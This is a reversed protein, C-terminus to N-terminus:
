LARHERALKLNLAYTKKDIGHKEAFAIQSPTLGDSDQKEESKPDITQTPKSGISSFHKIMQKAVETQVRASFKAEDGDPEEHKKEEAKVEEKKEEKAPEEKAEAKEEKAPEEKKEGGEEAEDSFSKKMDDFRKAKAMANLCAAMVSKEDAKEPDLGLNKIMEAEFNVNMTKPTSVTLPEDKSDSDLKTGFLSSTAAPSEVFDLANVATLVIQKLGNKLRKGENGLFDLSMGFLDSAERALAKITEKNPLDFLKIDARVLDGIRRFNFAEGIMTLLKGNEGQEPHDIRVRVKKGNTLRVVDNLFQGDLFIGHGKAEGVECVRVGQIVDDTGEELRFPSFVRVALGAQKLKQYYEPNEALHDMAIKRAIKEDDTHEMEVATGEKLQEPDFDKEDMGKSKSELKEGAQSYCVAARQKQDPYEKLMTPNAMCSSIFEDKKQGKSPKPLPM